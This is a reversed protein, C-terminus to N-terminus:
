ASAVQADTRAPKRLRAHLQSIASWRYATAHYLRRQQSTWRTHWEMVRGYFEIRAFRQAEFVTRFADQHMLSAPSVNKHQADFATKLIVLTSGASICLDMAAVADGFRYRWIQAEGRRCFRELMDQYFRGQSNDAGVATGTGAKWSASELEGYQHLAEAVESAETLIELRPDLGDAELKNRQKRVNGRLNKGRAEWYADFDGDVDVWATDIYDLTSLRGSDAPRPMLLPDLQTLGLALNMGPLATILAAALKELSLSPRAIWAGLPLQSPQFTQWRGMGAPAVLAAAVLTGGEQALALRERGTGFVALLPILFDSELFPLNGAERNLADWRSAHEALAAAPLLTWHLTM